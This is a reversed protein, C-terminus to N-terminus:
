KKVIWYVGFGLVGLGIGVLAEVLAVNFLMFICFLAGFVSLVPVRFISFPIRFANKVRSSKKNFRLAIVSINVVFFTLFLIVNSVNAIFDIRKGLLVVLASVLGTLFVAIFPTRRTLHVKSLIRLKKFDKGFGYLMRSTTVLLILVTNGTSFLAVISLIIGAIGGMLTQAVLALPAKSSSLVDWGVVSVASIGVLMYLIMTIIVSLVLARPITKRANKTEESLKVVSEFGTYAFFILAAASFVGTLGAPTTVTYDVSGFYGFSLLVIVVLAGVEFITFLVNLRSSQEIGWFNVFSFLLICLISLILLSVPVFQSLYGAFGMAVAAAGVVGSLIVLYGIVFALAKSSFANLTYSFEGDSKPFLSSLEAYALGTCAAVIASILFSLWVMNGALGAAAGILAYIGAGVIIGVGACTAEFLGLNRRLTVNKAHHSRHYKM